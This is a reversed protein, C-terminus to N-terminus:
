NLRVKVSAGSAQPDELVLTVSETTLRKIGIILTRGQGKANQIRTPFVDGEKHLKGDVTLQIAGNLIVVGGIKMSAVASKLLNQAYDQAMPGTPPIDPVTVKSANPAAVAGEASLEVGAPVRFPNWEADFAAPKTRYHYLADMESRVRRFRTKLLSDAPTTKAPTPKAAAPTTETPIRIYLHWLVAWIVVLSVLAILQTSQKKM